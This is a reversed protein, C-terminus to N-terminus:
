ISVMRKKRIRISLKMLYGFFAYLVYTAHRIRKPFFQTALYYSKGYKKHINRCFEIDQELLTSDIGNERM